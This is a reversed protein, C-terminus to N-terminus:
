AFLILDRSAKLGSNLSPKEKKIHLAEKFLLINWNDSKDVITTNDVICNIRTLRRETEDLEPLMLQMQNNLYNLENCYLLHDYIASDKITTHEVCREYLSRDIKGIYNASCIGSIDLRRVPEYFIDFNTSSRHFSKKTESVM